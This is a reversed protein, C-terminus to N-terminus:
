AGVARAATLYDTGPHATQYAIAKSHLALRDPDVHVNAPASFNVTQGDAGTDRSREGFEIQVPMATLLERLVDGAPRTATTTGDAFSLPQEPLALMLEIVPAQQRPLLRGASVLPEVFSLAEARRTAAAAAAVEQERESIAAERAAIASEREALNIAPNPMAPEQIAPTAFAPTAVDAVDEDRAAGQVNDIQYQPIIADASEIGDSAIFKERLKRLVDGISSFASRERFDGFEIVGEDADALHVDRLGKVAPPMAGLFGVHRLYLKGPTPNGPSAPGFFSASRKKFRGSRVMDAFAPDVQDADAVLLAGEARLGRVWGYAPHNHQPHGVVLPAESLSPNYGAAIDAVDAATIEVERGSMDIHRGARFIEIANTPNPM